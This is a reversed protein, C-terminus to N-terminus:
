IVDFDYMATNVQREIFQPPLRAPEPDEKTCYPPTMACKFFGTCENRLRAHFMKFSYDQIDNRFPNSIREKIELLGQYVIPSVTLVFCKTILTAYNTQGQVASSGLTVGCEIALATMYLKSFFVVLHSYNLPFQMTLQALITSIANRAQESYELMTNQNSLPDPLRGDLCWKTFLSSIWVWCMQSKAPVNQLLAAEKATLLNEKELASLDLVGSEKAQKSSWVDVKKADMFLLSLSLIGYRMITDRAHKDEYHNGPFYIAMRLCMDAIVNM